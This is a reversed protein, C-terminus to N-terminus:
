KLAIVSESEFKVFIVLVFLISLSNLPQPFFSLFFFVLLFYFMFYKFIFRLSLKINKEHYDNRLQFIM